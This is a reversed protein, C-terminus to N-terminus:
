RENRDRASEWGVSRVNANASVGLSIPKRKWIGAFWRVGRDPELRFDHASFVAFKYVHISLPMDFIHATRRPRKQVVHSQALVIHRRSHVSDFVSVDHLKTDVKAPTLFHNEATNTDPNLTGSGPLLLRIFELIYM